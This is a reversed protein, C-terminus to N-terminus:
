FVRVEQGVRRLRHEVFCMLVFSNDLVRRFCSQGEYRDDDTTDECDSDTESGETESDLSESETVSM